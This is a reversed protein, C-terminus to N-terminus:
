NQWKLEEKLMWLFNEQAEKKLLVCIGLIFVSGSTGPM